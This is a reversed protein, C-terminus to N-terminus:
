AGRIPMISLAGAKSHALRGVDMAANNESVGFASVL